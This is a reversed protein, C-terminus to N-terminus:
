FFVSQQLIIIHTSYAKKIPLRILNEEINQVRYMQKWIEATIAALMRASWKGHYRKEM